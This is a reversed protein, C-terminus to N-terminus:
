QKVTKIRYDNKVVESSYDKKDCSMSFLLILM